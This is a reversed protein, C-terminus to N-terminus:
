IQTHQISLTSNPHAANILNFTPTNCLSPDVEHTANIPNFTPTNSKCTNSNCSLVRQEAAPLAANVMNLTDVPSSQTYMMCCHPTLGGTQVTETLRVTGVQCWVDDRPYM